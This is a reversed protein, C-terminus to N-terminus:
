ALAGERRTGCLKQERVRIPDDQSFARLAPAAPRTGLRIEDGILRRAYSSTFRAFGVIRVRLEDEDAPMVYRHNLNNCRRGGLVRFFCEHDRPTLDVLEPPVCEVCM